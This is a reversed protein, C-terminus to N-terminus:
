EFAPLGGGGGSCNRNHLEVLMTDSTGQRGSGDSVLCRVTYTKQLYLSIQPTNGVTVWQTEGEYRRQWTYSLPLRQINGVSEVRFATTYGDQQFNPISACSEYCDQYVGCADKYYIGEMCVNPLLPPSIANVTLTLTREGEVPHVVRVLIEKQGATSFTHQAQWAGETFSTGGNFSWYYSLAGTFCSYNTITFRAPEDLYVAEPPEISLLAAFNPNAYYHSAVIDGELNKTLVERGLGDFQTFFTNGRTNVTASVGFPYQYTLGTFQSEAPYVALEDLEVTAAIGAIDLYFELTVQQPWGTTNMEQEYYQWQSGAPYPLNLSTISSGNSRKVLLRATGSTGAKLWYSLLLKKGPKAELTQTLKVPAKISREGTRGSGYTVPKNQHAAAAFGRTALALKEFDTYAVQGATANTFTAM